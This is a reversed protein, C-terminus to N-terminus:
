KVWLHLNSKHALAALWQGSTPILFELNSGRKNPPYVFVFGFLTVEIIYCYWVEIELLKLLKLDEIM